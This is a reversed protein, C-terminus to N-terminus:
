HVASTFRTVHEIFQAMAEMHPFHGAELVTLTATPMLDALEAEADVGFISATGKVGWLM